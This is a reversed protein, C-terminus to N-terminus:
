LRNRYYKELIFGFPYLLSVLIKHNGKYNYSSGKYLRRFAHYRLIYSIRESMLPTIDIRQSYYLKYGAPNRLMLAYPNSSLGEQQYECTTYVENLVLFQYREEYRDYIVSETMFKEETEEPFFYQKAINTKFILSREGRQGQLELNYLSSRHIDGNYAEGIIKKAPNEKLAIIGALVEDSMLESLHSKLKEVSNLPLWDDSDVCFFLDGRANRLGKNYARYKGGNSQRIYRIPFGSNERKWSLVRKETDDTSGDDVILWEFDKCTQELLSQHLRTITNIRNYTPTFITLLM